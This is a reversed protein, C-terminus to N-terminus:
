PSQCNWCIDFTGENVENRHECVWNSLEQTKVSINGNSDVAESMENELEADTKRYIESSQGVTDLPNVSKIYKTVTWEGSAKFQPKVIIDIIEREWVKDTTNLLHHFKDNM